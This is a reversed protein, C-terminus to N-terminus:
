PGPHVSHANTLDLPTITTGFAREAGHLPVPTTTPALSPLTPMNCCRSPPQPLWFPTYTVSFSHEADRVPSSPPFLTNTTRYWSPPQSHPPCWPLCPHAPRTMAFPIHTTLLAPLPREHYRVHTRAPGARGGDSM